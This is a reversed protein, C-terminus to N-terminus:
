CDHWTLIQTKLQIRGYATPPKLRFIYEPHFRHCFTFSKKKGFYIAVAQRQPEVAGAHLPLISCGNGTKDPFKTGPAIRAVLRSLQEPIFEPWM